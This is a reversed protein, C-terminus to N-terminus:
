ATSRRWCGTATSRWRAGARPRRDVARQGGLADRRLLGPQQPGQHGGQRDAKQIHNGTAIESAHMLMVLARPARGQRQPDPFRGAHGKGTGTGTWGGAGFSNPGGLMVLGAGMQQTNRVLMDIQEDSFSVDESTARPVNALVVTDFPQLEALSTFLQDTARVAVELGQQRLRHVLLDHEGRHEYDEILLVQGKGAVHTFATARNNQPMADDEPRTPFSAPRTPTSTRRTSRSGSRSCRRARRCCSRSTASCWRSITPSRRSSWGATSRARTAPGCTARQQERRDAPRVAPRPPHRRAPHGARRGGRGPQPYRVPVVDIGIGAAALGQAQELANGQNQNGDSVLVIRKAADEPFTAQALKMAAALNTYEPDLLSEITSGLRIEDDFPPIEIAADRGFVIVGARDSGAAHKRVEANVYDIMARRRAPPISLSQDLLFIVTLRDASRPGDPGRGGGAGPWSCWRASCRWPWGDGCPGLAPWGAFSLWGSCRCWRWCPVSYVPAAFTLHYHCQDHTTTGCECSGM